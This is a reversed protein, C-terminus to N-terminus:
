NKCINELYCKYEEEIKTPKYKDDDDLFSIFEGNAEKIGVNRSLAGGLNKENKIYRINSYREVIKETEKREQTDKINDDVVILEINPYTQNIVSDIAREIKDPRKYTTIIVTVLPENM